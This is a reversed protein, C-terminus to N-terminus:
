MKSLIKRKYRKMKINLIHFIHILFYQFQQHNKKISQTNAVFAAKCINCSWNYLLEKNEFCLAGSLTYKLKMIRHSMSLQFHMAKWYPHHHYCHRHHFWTEFCFLGSKLFFFKCSGFSDPGCDSNMGYIFFISEKKPM